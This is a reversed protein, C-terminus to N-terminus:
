DTLIAALVEFAGGAVSGAVDGWDIGSSTTTTEEYVPQQMPQMPVPRMPELLAALEGADFWTGHAQCIDLSVQGFTRRGMETRCSACKASARVDPRRQATQSARTAMDVVRANFHQTVRQAADNDLWIGGCLGCGLMAVGDADGAFLRAECRPCVLDSRAAEASLAAIASTTGCFACTM